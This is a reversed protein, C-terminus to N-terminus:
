KAGVWALGRRILESTGAMKLAKVDHGLSTQFVRGARYQLALAMPSDKDIKVSHATALIDVQRDGIYDFFLEDDTEFDRMGKMVPHDPNAVTVKFPGRLDHKRQQCRGAINAYEPWYPFAGSAWHILVLGKGRELFKVLNSRAKDDQALPKENRFDFVAADFTFLEDSALFNPDPVITASVGASQEIIEKIAASTEQWKHGPFTNDGTIIVVRTAATLLSVTSLLFVLALVRVITTKSKIHQM